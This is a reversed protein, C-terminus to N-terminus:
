EDTEEWLFIDEVRLQYYRALRLALTLSPHYRGRELSGITQRTVRM